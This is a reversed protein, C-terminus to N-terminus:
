IALSTKISATKDHSIKFIFPITVGDKTFLEAKWFGKKLNSCKQHTCNITSFTTILLIVFIYFIRLNRM